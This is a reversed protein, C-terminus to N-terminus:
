SFKRCLASPLILTKLRPQKFLKISTKQVSIFGDLFLKRAKTWSSTCLGSVGTKVRPCSCPSKLPSRRGLTSCSRSIPSSRNFIDCRLFISSSSSSMRLLPLLPAGWIVASGSEIKDDSWRAVVIRDSALCELQSLLPLQSIACSTKAFEFTVSLLCWTVDFSIRWHRAHNM